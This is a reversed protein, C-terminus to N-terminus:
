SIRMIVQSPNIYVITNNASDDWLYGISQVTWGTYSENPPQAEVAGSEGAYLTTGIQPPTGGFYSNDKYLGNILIKGDALNNEVTDGRWVVIGIAPIQTSSDNINCRQYGTTPSTSNIAVLNGVFASSYHLKANIILGSYGGNPLTESLKVGHGNTILDNSLKPDTDGSLDFPGVPIQKWGM